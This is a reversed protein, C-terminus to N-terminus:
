VVVTKSLVKQRTMNRWTNVAGATAVAVGGLGTAFESANIGGAKAAQATETALQAAQQAASVTQTIAELAHQAQIHQVPTMVGSGALENFVTALGAVGAGVAAITEPATQCSTLLIACLALFTWKTLNSM